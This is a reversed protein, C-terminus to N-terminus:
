AQPDVKNLKASEILTFAMAMAMSNGGRQLGAFMWNKRGSAVPKMAREATNNDLELFGNDLFPRTKPLRNGELFQPSRSHREHHLFPCPVFCWRRYAAEQAITDEVHLVPPREPVDTVPAVLAHLISLFGVGYPM